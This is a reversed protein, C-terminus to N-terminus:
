PPDGGAASVFGAPGHRPNAHVRQMARILLRIFPDFEAALLCVVTDVALESLHFLEALRPLRLDVGAALSATELRALTERDDSSPPPAVDGKVLREARVRIREIRAFM